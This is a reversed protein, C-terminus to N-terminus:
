PMRNSVFCIKLQLTAEEFTPNDKNPHFNDMKSLKTVERNQLSALSIVQLSRSECMRTDCHLTCPQWFVALNCILLCVPCNILAISSNSTLMELALGTWRVM